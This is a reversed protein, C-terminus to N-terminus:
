NKITEGAAYNILAELDFRRLSSPNTLTNKRFPSHPLSFPPPLVFKPDEPDSIPGPSM